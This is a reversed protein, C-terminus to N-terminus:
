KKKKSAKAIPNFALENKKDIGTKNSLVSEGFTGNGWHLRGYQICVFVIYDYDDINVESSLNFTMAGSSYNLGSITGINAVLFMESTDIPETYDNTTSLYVHVDYVNSLTLYDTDFRLDLSKNDFLELYM